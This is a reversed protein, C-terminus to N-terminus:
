ECRWPPSPRVLWATTKWAASWALRYSMLFSVARDDGRCRLLCCSVVPSFPASHYWAMRVHSRGAERLLCRGNGAGRKGYRVLPALPSSGVVEGGVAHRRSSALVIYPISSSLCPLSARLCYRCSPRSSSVCCGSLRFPCGFRCRGCFPLCSVVGRRGHRHVPLPVPRLSPHSLVPCDLRM